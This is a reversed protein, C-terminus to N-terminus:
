QIELFFFFSFFFFFLSFFLFASNSFRFLFVLSFLIGVILEINEPQKVAEQALLTSGARFDTMDVNLGQM